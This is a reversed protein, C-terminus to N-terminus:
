SPPRQAAPIRAAFHSLAGRFGNEAAFVSPQAFFQSLSFSLTGFDTQRVIDASRSVLSSDFGFSHLLTVLSRSLGQRRVTRRAVSLDASGVGFLLKRRVLSRSVQRQARIVRVIAGAAHRAYGAAVAEQWKLWDGRGRAYLAETARNMSVDLAYLNLVEAQEAQMLTTLQVALKRDVVRGRHVVPPTLRPPQVGNEFNGDLIESGLEFEYEARAAATATEFLWFQKLAATHIHTSLSTEFLETDLVFAHAWNVTDPFSQTKEDCTLLSRGSCAARAPPAGATATAGGIAALACSAVAAVVAIWVRM